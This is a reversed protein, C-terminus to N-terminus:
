PIQNNIQCLSKKNEIRRENNENENENHELRLGIVEVGFL